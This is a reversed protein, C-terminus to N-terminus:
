HQYGIREWWRPFRQDEHALKIPEGIRPTLLRYNRGETAAAVRRFPEDWSHNAITFRGVHGPLFAKGRLEEAARAAEEPFMHLFPWRADYQGTDLVVLDFGEFKRGIEAFHPGYGSDGGFFVRRQPTALAFGVWLTKNRTLLRRSYHRAPLVHVSLGNGLELASFWDAEHIKEKAWGWQEFYAGIGLGTIVKRTKSELAKVSPYDLHDWHDHTILLYDIEPMDDAAYLSTGDFARNSSPVPAAGSSFVPDILITRGGLLVFYSSHGLWVVVDEDRALAKLDTKVAPISVGPMLREKDMFLNALLASLFSTGEAFMPTPVLNRFEGDVYNPSREIVELRGGDPLKGFKPQQLYGWAGLLLAGVVALLVLFVRTLRRRVQKGPQGSARTM